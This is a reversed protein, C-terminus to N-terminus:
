LNKNKTLYSYEPHKLYNITKKIENNIENRTKKNLNIKPAYYNYTKAHTRCINNLSVLVKQLDKISM